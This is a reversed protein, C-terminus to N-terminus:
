IPLIGLELYTGENPTSYSCPMILKLFKLQIQKLQNIDPKRLRTRTQGNFLLSSLFISESLKLKVNIEFMLGFCVEECIPLISSM